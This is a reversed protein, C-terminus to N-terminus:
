GLRRFQLIKDAITQTQYPNLKVGALDDALIRMESQCAGYGAPSALLFVTTLLTQRVVADSTLRIM